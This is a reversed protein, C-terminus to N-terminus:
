VLPLRRNNQAEVAEVSLGVLQEALDYLNRKQEGDPAWSHALEVQDAYAKLVTAAFRDTINIVVCRGVPEGTNRDSVHYRSTIDQM